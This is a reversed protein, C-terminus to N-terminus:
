YKSVFILCTEPQYVCFLDRSFNICACFARELAISSQKMGLECRMWDPNHTTFTFTSWLISSEQLSPFIIRPVFTTIIFSLYSKFGTWENYKRVMYCHCLPSSAQSQRCSSFNSLTYSLSFSAFSQLFYILLSKGGRRKGENLRVVRRWILLFFLSILFLLLISPLSLFSLSFSISPSLISSSLSSPLVSLVVLLVLPQSVSPLTFSHRLIYVSFPLVPRPLSISYALTREEWINLKQSRNSPILVLFRKSLLFNVSSFSVWLCVLRKPSRCLSLVFIALHVLFSGLFFTFFFPFLKLSWTSRKLWM